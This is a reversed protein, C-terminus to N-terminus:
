TSLGLAERLEREEDDTTPGSGDESLLQSLRDRVDEVAEGGGNLAVAFREARADGEVQELLM